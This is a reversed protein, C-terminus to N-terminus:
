DTSGYGGSSSQPDFENSDSLHRASADNAITRALINVGAPDSLPAYGKRRDFFGGWFVATYTAVITGVMGGTLVDSWHHWNDSIRTYCVLLGSVMIITQIIPLLLKSAVRHGLRSQLYLVMFVAGYMATASHGSFFSLRGEKIRTIQGTCTYDSIYQHENTCNYGVPTCVDIFHPRLRGVSYKTAQSLVLQVIFGIQAYAFYVLSEVFYAHVHSNRWRYSPRTLSKEMKYMIFYETCLIVIMTGGISVIMLMNVPVTNPKFKYLISEDDCFFGRQYAGTFFPIIYSSAGFGYLCIINIFIAVVNIEQTMEDMDLLRDFIQFRVSSSFKRVLNSMEEVRSPKRKAQAMNTAKQV